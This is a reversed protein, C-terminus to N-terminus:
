LLEYNTKGAHAPTIRFNKELNMASLPKGRMRPPSGTEAHLGNQWAHNEGCARPHDPSKLYGSFPWRTKGAHAPTIRETVRLRFGCGPKGRMRPPSGTSGCVFRTTPRTKGAHAPTIRAADGILGLCALKGRMRPPSGLHLGRVFTKTRNEGCARPHDTNYRIRLEFISTKGAHAPTIRNLADQQREEKLKGRMRPPSGSCCNVVLCILCNEGCARPHDTSLPSSCGAPSTKGAHAPTIRRVRASLLNHNLKGRMRPPSGGEVAVLVM